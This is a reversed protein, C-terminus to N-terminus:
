KLKIFKFINLNLNKFMIEHTEKSFYPRFGFLEGRVKDRLSNENIMSSGTVLDDNTLTVEFNGIKKDKMDKLSFKSELTFSGLVQLQKAKDYCFEYLQLDSYEMDMLLPDHSGKQFVLLNESLIDRLTRM